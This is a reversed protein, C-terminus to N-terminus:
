GVHDGIKLSYESGADCLADVLYARYSSDALIHFRPDGGPERAIVASIRALSTQAVQLCDFVGPSLNVGCLKALMLPTHQGALHFWCHSDNRRLLYCQYDEEVQVLDKQSTDITGLWILESPSLSLLLSGDTQQKAWNSDAITYNNAQTWRTLDEGRVGIRECHNLDTLIPESM